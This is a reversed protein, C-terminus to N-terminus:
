ENMKRVSEPNQQKCCKEGTSKNCNEQSGLLWGYMFALEAGTQYDCKTDVEDYLGFGINFCEKIIHRYKRAKSLLEAKKAQKIVKRAQECEDARTRDKRWDHWLQLLTTGAKKGAIKEFEDLLRETKRNLHEQELIEKILAKVKKFQEIEKNVYFLEKSHRVVVFESRDTDHIRNLKFLDDARLEESSISIIYPTKRTVLRVM